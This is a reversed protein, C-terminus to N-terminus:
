EGILTLVWQWLAPASVHQGLGFRDIAYMVASMDLVGLTYPLKKGKWQQVRRVMANFKEAFTQWAHYKTEIRDRKQVLLGLQYQRKAIQCADPRSGPRFAPEMALTGATKAMKGYAKELRAVRRRILLGAVTLVFVLATYLLIM